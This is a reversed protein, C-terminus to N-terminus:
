RNRLSPTDDREPLSRPSRSPLYNASESRRGGGMQQSRESSSKFFRAALLGVGFAAGLFLEPQRRAFDEADRVVADVDQNQLYGSVREVQQAVRDSYQAVQTRNQQRLHGGTERFAQAVTDLETAMQGKREELMSKAQYEAKRTAEQARQQAEDGLERAKSETREVIQQAKQQAEHASEKVKSETESRTTDAM